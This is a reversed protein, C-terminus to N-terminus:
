RLTAAESKETEKLERRRRARIAQDLARARGRREWRDMRHYNPIYKEYLRVGKLGLKRDKYAADIIESRRRGRKGPPFVGRKIEGLVALWVRRSLGPFDRALAKGISV